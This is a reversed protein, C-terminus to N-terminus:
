AAQEEAPTEAEATVEAEVVEPTEAVETSEVVEADAEAAEPQETQAIPAEAVEVNEPMAEEAHEIVVIPDGAKVKTAMKGVRDRLYYLKSRRVSGSRIVKIKGISPSHLPLKKEVGIGYSIKRLTVMQHTGKGNISIVLGKFRQIRQKGGEKIITEVELTDGVKFAPIDQKMTKADIYNILEQSM